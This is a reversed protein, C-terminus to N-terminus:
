RRMVMLSSRIAPERSFVMNPVPRFPSRYGIDKVITKLHVTYLKDVIEM